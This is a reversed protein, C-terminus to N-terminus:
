KLFWHSFSLVSNFASQISSSLKCCASAPSPWCHLAAGAHIADISGSPFPLRSIDARVLVFNSLSPVLELFVKFMVIILSKFPVGLKFIVPTKTSM